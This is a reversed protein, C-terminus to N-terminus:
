IAPKQLVLHCYHRYCRDGMSTNNLRTYPDAIIVLDIERNRVTQILLDHATECHNLNHQLIKMETKVPQRTEPKRKNKNKDYFAAFTYCM